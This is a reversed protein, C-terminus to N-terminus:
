QGLGKRLTAFFEATSRVRAVGENLTARKAVYSREAAKSTQAYLDIDATTRLYPWKRLFEPAAATGDLFTALPFDKETAVGIEWPVWSSNRTADSVVALLQTCSSMEAQIHAALDEGKGMHPDIVDLYYDIQHQSKLRYAIAAAKTSDAQQHSIFVKIM